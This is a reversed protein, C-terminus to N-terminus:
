VCPPALSSVSRAAGCVCTARVPELNAEAEMYQLGKQVFTVLAAPPVLNPQIQVSAMHSEHAFTFASHHFGPPPHHPHLVCRMPVVVATQVCGPTSGVLWCSTLHSSARIGTHQVSAMLSCPPSCHVAAKGRM